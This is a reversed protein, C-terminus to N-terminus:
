NDPAGQEIWDRILQIENQSLFPPGDLPMRNGFKPSASSIKQIIYSDDPQGPVVRVNPSVNPAEFTPQNVLKGRSNGRTLDLGNNQAGGTGNFGIGGPSHCRICNTDFLPQIQAAFGTSNGTELDGSETLGTGDGQCSFWVAAAGLMLGAFVKHNRYKMKM